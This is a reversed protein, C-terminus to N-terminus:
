DNENTVEKIPHAECYTDYELLEPCVACRGSHYCLCNFFMCLGDEYFSYTDMVVEESMRVNYDTTTWIKAFTKIFPKWSKM